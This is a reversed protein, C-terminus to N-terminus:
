VAHALFVSVIEDAVFKALSGAFPYSGFAGRGLPARGGARGSVRGATSSRRSARSSGAPPRNPWTGRAEGERRPPALPDCRRWNPPVCAPDAPGGDAKATAAATASHIRKEGREAM